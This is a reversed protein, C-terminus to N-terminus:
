FIISVVSFQFLGCIYLHFYIDDTFRDSLLNVVTLMQCTDECLRALCICTYVYVCVCMYVYM